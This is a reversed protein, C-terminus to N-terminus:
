RRKEILQQHELLDMITDTIRSALMIVWGEPTRITINGGNPELIVEANNITMVCSDEDQSQEDPHEIIVQRPQLDSM